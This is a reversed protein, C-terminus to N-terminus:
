NQPPLPRTGPGPAGGTVRGNSVKTHHNFDFRYILGFTVVKPSLVKLELPYTSWFQYQLDAKAAWHDFLDLDVGAGPSYVTSTTSIYKFRGSIFGGRQYDIQGRGVLADVYPHLRGYQRELRIGGVVSKEGAITGSIIPYTGRLELSPSLGFFPRFSFDVGATIGANHGGFVDTFVGTAGGFVSLRSTQTATPVAQSYGMRGVALTAFLGALCMWKTIRM